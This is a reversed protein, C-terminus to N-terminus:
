HLPLLSFRKLDYKKLTYTIDQSTSHFTKRGDIDKWYRQYIWKKTKNSHKKRGWKMLRHYIYDNLGSWVDWIGNCCRHYNMWGIINQNLKKILLEPSHTKKIIYKIQKRHQSISEKSIQSLFRSGKKNKYRRFHWGLFDFGQYVNLIKTKEENINFGRTNLFDNIAMKVRKLQRKSLGTVIFDDAYRVVNICTPRFSRHGKELKVYGPKFRQKLYNELGNLTLNLLTTSIVGGQPQSRPFLASSEIYGAKLWSKLVKTEMPTNKLLWDYNIKDFCKDIHAELIWMPSTPKDLLNRIQAHADWCGRYPRFGYSYPDSRAEVYPELALKWLAQRARDNMCPIGLPQNHGKSKPIYMRGLSKTPSKKRFELAAQLKRKPTTWVERDIGPKLVGSNEQAVIRVGKLRASLSRTLLRQLNRVKRHESRQTAKTIRHQLNEITKELKSWNVGTWQQEKFPHYISKSTNNQINTSNTM